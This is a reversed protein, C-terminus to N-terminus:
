RHGRSHLDVGLLLGVGMLNMVISTGGYSVFPLPLGKTPLLGTAVMMNVLAQVVISFTLSQILLKEYLTSARGTMHMGSFFIIGFLLIVVLVGILGLEEGIVAFIFDNYGSPLYFLKQTSQGLGVGKLGGLGFALFSQIIQFGSGQPDDWPNIYATVRSLRYPVRIVLFYIVPLFILSSIIVFRAQIGSMFFLFAMLLFIFACSGLDPQLLSIGCIGGILIFPPLFVRLGGEHITKAKRSLYDALYLCVALKAFETPQFNVPGLHMWRRAGGATHGIGPLFVLLLMLISMLIIARAHRKWFEIPIRAVAFLAITGILTYCAQRVLFYQPYGYVQEAYVASASYTMVIGIGVLAYVSVFFLRAAKSM